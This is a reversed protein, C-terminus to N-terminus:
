WTFWLLYLLQCYIIHLKCNGGVSYLSIPIVENAPPPDAAAADPQPQSPLAAMQQLMARLSVDAMQRLGGLVIADIYQVYDQWAPSAESINM